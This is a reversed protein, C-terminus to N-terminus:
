RCPEELCGNEGPPVSKGPPKVERHLASGWLSESGELPTIEKPPWAGRPPEIERLPLAERPQTIEKWLAVVERLQAERFSLKEELLQIGGPPEAEKHSPVEGPLFAGRLQM